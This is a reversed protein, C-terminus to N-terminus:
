LSIKSELFQDAATVDISYSFHAGTVVLTDDCVTDGPACFVKVKNSPFGNIGGNEQANRTYGYLVVGKIRNQVAGSLGKIAGDIVATGQSYGGAVIQTNPCKTAAQNFLSEGEAIAAPSTNEPLFNDELSATYAGGVGQCAVQNTGYRAKLGSCTPPGVSSGINGTETSARAFIFTVSRCPGNLLESATDGTVQREMLELPATLSLSVFPVLPLLKM